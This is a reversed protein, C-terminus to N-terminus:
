DEFLIMKKNKNAKYMQRLREIIQDKTEMKEVEVIVPALFDQVTTKFPDM